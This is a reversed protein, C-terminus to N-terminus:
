RKWFKLRGWGSTQKAVENVAAEEQTAPEDVGMPEQVPADTPARMRADNGYRHEEYIERARRRRQKYRQLEQAHQVDKPDVLRHARPARAREVPTEGALMFPGEPEAKRTVANVLNSKM